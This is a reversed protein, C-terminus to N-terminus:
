IPATEFFGLVRIKRKKKGRNVKERKFLKKKKKKSIM